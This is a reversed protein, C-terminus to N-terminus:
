CITSCRGEKTVGRGHATFIPLHQKGLLEDQQGEVRVPPRSVPQRVLRGSGDSDSAGEDRLQHLVTMDVHGVTADTEGAGARGVREQGLNQVAEGGM